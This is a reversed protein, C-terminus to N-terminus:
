VEANAQFSKFTHGDKAAKDKHKLETRTISYAVKM